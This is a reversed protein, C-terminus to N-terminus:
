DPLVRLFRQLEGSALEPLRRDLTVLQGDRRMVVALLVADTIQRHGQVRSVIQGPLDLMSVDLPWFSHGGLQRLEGLMELAERPTIPSKVASPNCSLRVFGAETLPCTAWGEERQRIFWYRVADHHVHSSWALAVLANVDLLAIM